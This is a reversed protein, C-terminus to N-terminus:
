LLLIYIVGAITAVLSPKGNRKRRKETTSALLCVNNVYLILFFLLFYIYIKKKETKLLLLHPNELTMEKKHQKKRGRGKHGDNRNNLYPATNVTGIIPLFMVKRTPGSACAGNKLSLTLSVGSYHLSPPCIIATCCSFALLTEVPIIQFINPLYPDTYQGQERQPVYLLITTETKKTHQLPTNHPGESPKLLRAGGVGGVGSGPQM